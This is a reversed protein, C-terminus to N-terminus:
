HHLFLHLFVPFHLNDKNLIEPTKIGLSNFFDNTKFKDDLTTVLESDSVIIHIGHKKFKLRADALLLLETDVTPVVIKVKNDLCIKLLDDVYNPENFFGIKFSKHAFHSTPSSEFPNLDTTFVESKTDFDKSAKIFGKLLSVRRGASTILINNM